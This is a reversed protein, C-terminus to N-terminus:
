IAEWYSILFMLAMSRLQASLGWRGPKMVHKQKTAYYGRAEIRALIDALLRFMMPHLILLCIKLLNKAALESLQVHLLKPTLWALIDRGTKLFGWRTLPNM